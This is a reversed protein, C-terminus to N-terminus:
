KALYIYFSFTVYGLEWYISETEADYKADSLYNYSDGWGAVDGSIIEISNDANLKFYGKMAYASGYGARQDYYGGMYDSCYFVGPAIQSISISYDSFPTETTGSVRRTEGVTTYSGSIDTSIEPNYVVVTRRASGPLGDVNNATYTVAYVGIEETNVNSNTIVTSTIDNEGEMVVVGADTYSAGVPVLETSEGLLTFTPYYTIRTFGATSDSECSTMTILGLACVMIIYLIKNKM